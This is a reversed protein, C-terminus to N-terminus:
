RLLYLVVLTDIGKSQASTVHVVVDVVMAVWLLVLHDMLLLSTFPALSSWIPEQDLQLLLGNSFSLQWLAALIGFFVQARSAALLLTDALM